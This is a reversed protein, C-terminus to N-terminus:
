RESEHQGGRPRAKLESELVEMLSTKGAWVKELEEWAGRSKPGLFPIFVAKGFPRWSAVNQIGELFGVVVLGQVDENGTVLFEEMLGFVRRIEDTKGTPYLDEVVFRVFEAIDNYAGVPEGKWYDLHKEWTPRFAPFDAILRAMLDKETPKDDRYFEWNPDESM